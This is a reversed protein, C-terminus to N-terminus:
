PTRLRRSHAFVTFKDPHIIRRLHNCKTHLMARVSRAFATRALLVDGLIPPPMRAASAPAHRHQVFREPAFHGHLLPRPHRPDALGFQAVPNVSAARRHLLRDCNMCLDHIPRHQCLELHPQPIVRRRIGIRRPVLQRGALGCFQQSDVPVADVTHRLLLAEGRPLNAAVARLVDYRPGFQAFPHILM